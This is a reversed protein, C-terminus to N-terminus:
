KMWLTIEAGTGSGGRVCWVYNEDDKAACNKSANGFYLIYAANANPRRDCRMAPTATWYYPPMGNIWEQWKVNSFPHGAPLAPPFHAWDVLSALEQFTPLHWGDREVVSSAYEICSLLAMNFPLTNNGLFKASPDREWVLGTEKDLVADDGTNPTGNDCVAFRSNAPWDVFVRDFMKWVPKNYIEELTNM